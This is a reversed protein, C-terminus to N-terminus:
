HVSLAQVLAQGVDIAIQAEAKEEETKAISLEKEAEHLVAEAAAKDLNELPHAEEALIQVSSDDNVTVTGSSAFIKKTSGDDEYITVIGPKLVALVPVHNPLIGFSGSVSSVDVQKVNKNAYFVQNAAAFTFDMKNSESADAAYSRVAALRYTRSSLIRAM